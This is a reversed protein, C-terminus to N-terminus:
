ADVGDFALLTERVAERAVDKVIVAEGLAKMLIMVWKGDQNKKDSSFHSLLAEASWHPRIDAPSVPCHAAHLHDRLRQEVSADCLGLQHSLHAAMVMGISVGEGHLLTGDYGAEAELAHGFTHGLNLLARKGAEREDEAVIAAKSACCHLITRTLAEPERSLIRAHDRELQAFFDADGLAGYKVIEAYGARLEREPLTNLTNTDILVAQPQYFAGILNKGAASNLGTKGGV